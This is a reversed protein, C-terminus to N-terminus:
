WLDWMVQGLISGPGSRHSTPFWSGSRLLPRRLIKSARYRPHSDARRLSWQSCVVVCYLFCSPSRTPNRVCSDWTRSTPLLVCRLANGRHNARSAKSQIRMPQSWSSVWAQSKLGQGYNCPSKYRQKQYRVHCIRPLRDPLNSLYLFISTYSLIQYTLRLEYWARFIRNGSFYM